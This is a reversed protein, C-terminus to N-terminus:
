GLVVVAHAPGLLLAEADVEAGLRGCRDLVVLSAARRRLGDQLRAASGDEIREVRGALGRAELWARAQEELTEEAVAIDFRSDLLAALEAGLALVRPDGDFVALVPAGAGDPAGMVLVPCVLGRSLARATAGVRPARSPRAVAGLAVLDGRRAEASLVEAIRGRAVRFSARVRWRDAAAALLAEADSAWARLGRAMVAEDLAEEALDHSRLVRTVPLAAAALLESEEVFLGVLEAESRSALRAATELAGQCQAMPDLAVLVRRIARPQPSASEAAEAM